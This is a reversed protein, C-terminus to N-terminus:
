NSRGARGDAQHHRRLDWPQPLRDQQSRRAPRLRHQPQPQPEPLRDRPRRPRSSPRWSSSASSAQRCRRCNARCCRGTSSTSGSAHWSQRRTLTATTRWSSNPALVSHYGLQQSRWPATQLWFSLAVFTMHQDGTGFFPILVVKCHCCVRHQVVREREREIDIFM